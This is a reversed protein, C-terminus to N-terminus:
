RLPSKLEMVQGDSVADTLAAGHLTEVFTGLYLELQEARRRDREAELVSLELQLVQLRGTVMVVYSCDRLIEAALADDSLARASAELTVRNM